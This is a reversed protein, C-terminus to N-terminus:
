VQTATVCKLLPNSFERKYLEGGVLTFRSVKKRIPLTNGGEEGDQIFKIISKMWEKSELAGVEAMNSDEMTVTLQDLTAHIMTRHQSKVKAIALKSLLDARFNQSRNVHELKTTKFKELMGKVVQYYWLLLPDMVQFTGEFHGIM